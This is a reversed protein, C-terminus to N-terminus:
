VEKHHKIKLGFGCGENPSRAHLRNYDALEKVHYVSAAHKGMKKVPFCEKCVVCYFLHKELTYNPM